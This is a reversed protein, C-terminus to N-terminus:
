FKKKKVAAFNHGNYQYALSIRDYLVKQNIKIRLFYYQRGESM